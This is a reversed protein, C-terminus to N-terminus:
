ITSFPWVKAHIPFTQISKQAMIWNIDVTWYSQDKNYNQSIYLYAHRKLGKNSWIKTSLPFVIPTYPKM